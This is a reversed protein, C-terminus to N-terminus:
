IVKHHAPSIFFPTDGIFRPFFFDLFVRRGMRFVFLFLGLFFFNLRIAIEHQQVLRARADLFVAFSMYSASCFQFSFFRGPLKKLLKVSCACSNAAIFNIQSISKPVYRFFITVNSPQSRPLFSAKAAIRKTDNIQHVNTDNNQPTALSASKIAAMQNALREIGQALSVLHIRLSASGFQIARISDIM